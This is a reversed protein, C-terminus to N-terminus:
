SRIPQTVPSTRKAPAIRLAYTSGSFASSTTPLANNRSCSRALVSAASSRFHTELESQRFETTTHQQINVAVNDLQHFVEPLQGDM